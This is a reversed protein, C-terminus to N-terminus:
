CEGREAITAPTKSITSGTIPDSEPDEPDIGPLVQEMEFERRQWSHHNARAWDDLPEDPEGRYQDPPIGYVRTM